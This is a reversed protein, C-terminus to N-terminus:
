APIIIVSLVCLTKQVRKTESTSGRKSGNVEFTAGSGPIISSITFLYLRKLISTRARLTHCVGDKGLPLATEASWLVISVSRPESRVLGKPEHMGYMHGSQLVGREKSGDLSKGHKIHRLLDVGTGLTAGGISREDSDPCQFIIVQSAVPDM